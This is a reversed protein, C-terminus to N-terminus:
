YLDEERVECNKAFVIGRSTPPNTPVRLRQVKEVIWGWKKTGAKFRFLPDDEAVLHRRQDALWQKKTFYEISESFTIVGVIRAKNVGNAKGTKGPTEIIALPQNIYKSPLCYGRTEITKKKTVLLESWPYQINIGSISLIKKPM